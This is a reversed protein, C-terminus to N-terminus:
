GVRSARSGGRLGARERGSRQETPPSKCPESRELQRSRGRGKDAGGRCAPSLSATRAQRPHRQSSASLRVFLDFAVLFSASLCATSLEDVDRRRSSSSDTLSVVVPYAVYSIPRRLHLM